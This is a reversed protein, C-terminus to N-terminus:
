RGAGATGHDEAPRGTVDIGQAAALITYGDGAALQLRRELGEADKATVLRFHAQPGEGVAFGPTAVFLLSLIVVLTTRM